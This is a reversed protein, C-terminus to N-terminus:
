GYPHDFWAAPALGLRTGVASFAGSARLRSIPPRASATCLSLVAKAAAERAEVEAKLRENELRQEERAAEEAAIRLREAEAKESLREAKTRGHKARNVAARTENDARAKAKRARNLNIIDAMSSDEVLGDPDM